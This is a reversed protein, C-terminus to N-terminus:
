ITGDLDSEAIRVAKHGNVLEVRIAELQRRSSDDTASEFHQGGSHQLSMESRDSRHFPALVGARHKRRARREITLNFKPIM